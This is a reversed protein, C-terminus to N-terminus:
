DRGFGEMHKPNTALDTHGSDFMGCGDKMAEFASVFRESTAPAPESVRSADDAGASRLGNAVYRAILDKLTLGELAARAKLQRFVSDPLDLTTRM